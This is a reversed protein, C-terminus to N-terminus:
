ALVFDMGLLAPHNTYHNNLGFGMGAGHVTERKLTPSSMSHGLGTAFNNLQSPLASVPEMQQYGPLPSLGRSSHSQPASFPTGGRANSGDSFGPSPNMRNHLNSDSSIASPNSFGGSATTAVNSAEGQSAAPSVRDIQLAQSGEGGPKRVHLTPKDFYWTSTSDYGENSLRRSRQPVPINYYRLTQQLISLDRADDQNQRRLKVVEAELAKIYNEKRERHNRTLLLTLCSNVSPSCPTDATLIGLSKGNLRASKLGEANTHQIVLVRPM